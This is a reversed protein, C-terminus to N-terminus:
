VADCGGLGTPMRRGFPHDFPALATPVASALCKAYELAAEGIGDKLGQEVVLGGAKGEGSSLPALSVGLTFGLISLPPSPPETACIDVVLPVRLRTRRPGVKHDTTAIMRGADDSSHDPPASWARATDLDIRIRARITTAYPEWNPERDSRRVVLSNM